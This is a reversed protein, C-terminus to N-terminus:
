IGRSALFEITAIVAENNMAQIKPPMLLSITNQIDKAEIDAFLSAIVGLMVTNTIPQKLIRMAIANADIALIREDEYNKVSNIIIRGGDKLYSVADKSYLSDDLYVIFDSNKIESRDSIPSNDLKTFAKMPAGRREPGFAPFALAYTDDRKLSYAAGLLKAATFAGQGGRGNWFIEVL